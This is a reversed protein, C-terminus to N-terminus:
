PSSKMMLASPESCRASVSLRHSSPVGAHCGADGLFYLNSSLPAPPMPSLVGTPASETSQEFRRSRGVGKGGKWHLNLVRRDSQRDVRRKHEGPETRRRAHIGLPETGCGGRRAGRSRARQSDAHRAHCVRNEQNSAQLRGRRGRHGGRKRRRWARGRRAGKLFPAINADYGSRRPSPGFEAQHSWRGTRLLIADGSSLKVGAQDEWAEIDERYVPTGPELYPLGKLRPIDVLIGRTVIGEALPALGMKSCGVEDNINDSYSFGNYLTDEHAVHCLADIHTWSPNHYQITQTESTIGRDPSASVELTFGEARAIDRALSFSTGTQVLAAAQKRKAPTILNLTGRQDESGWRGANSLETMWGELQERTVQSEYSPQGQQPSAQTDPSRGAAREGDEACGVLVGVAAVIFASGVVVSVSGWGSPRRDNRMM